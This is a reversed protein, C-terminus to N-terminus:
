ATRSHLERVLPALAGLGPHAALTEAGHAFGLFACEFERSAALDPPGDGVLLIQQATLKERAALARLNAVKDAPRGLVARFYRGWGRLEVIRTLTDQPSSSDLYLPYRESLCDLAELAGPVVPCAAVRRECRETYSAVLSTPDPLSRAGEDILAARAAPGITYRDAGPNEMLILEVVERSGAVEDFIEFFTDRKIANSEVLTGDFDFVVCRIRDWCSV